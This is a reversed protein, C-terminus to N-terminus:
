KVMLKQSIISQNVKIQVFYLGSNYQVTPIPFLNEGTMKGYDRSSVVQGVANTVTIAINAEEKLNLQVIALDDAPNPYLSLGELETIDEVDTYLADTKEAGIIAGSEDTVMVVAYVNKEKQATPISYEFSFPFVDTEVVMTDIFNPSGGFGFPLARGVEQYTMQSAPVPNPLNEYGGMPGANGGAYANAQNYGSATGKVFDEVVVGVVNFKADEISSFFTVNGNVKLTKNEIVQSVEIEVPSFRRQAINEFYDPMQDPDIDIERNILVSPYGSIMASIQSDYEEIAMPDENHVAIGIFGDPYDHRMKEMFIAGRPCWVCWTGTGEEAVMKRTIAKSVGTVTTYGINDGTFQDAVGNIMTVELSLGYKVAEQPSFVLVNDYSAGYALDIGTIDETIVQNGDTWDFSFSTLNESGKNTITYFIEVTSDVPTYNDSIFSSVEVDNDRLVVVEIDDVLLLFMDNSINRFAFRVDKGAYASLDLSRATLTANERNVRLLVKTFDAIEAGGTESILVEYGDPYSADVAMANWNLVTKETIGSVIPTIMWDDSKGAPTYWSVSIASYNGEFFEYATWADSFVSVQSAPTRKDVDILIMDGMGNEFDQSYLVQGNSSAVAICFILLTFFLRM